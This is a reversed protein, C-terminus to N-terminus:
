DEPVYSDSGDDDGDGCLHDLYDNWTIGQEREVCDGASSSDSSAPPRPQVRRRAM